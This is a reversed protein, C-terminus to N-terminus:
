QVPLLKAGAASLSRFTGTSGKYNAVRGAASITLDQAFRLDKLIPLRLEGFAEKVEFSTPSFLPIANYFTVAASTAADQQYFATERRYEAGVDFGVPGGPLNFFAGTDGSINGSLVL